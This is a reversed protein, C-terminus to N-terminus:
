NNKFDIFLEKIQDIQRDLFANMLKEIINPAMMALWAVPACHDINCLMKTAGCQRPRAGMTWPCEDRLELFFQKLEKEVEYVDIGENNM